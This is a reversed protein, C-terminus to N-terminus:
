ASKQHAEIPGYEEDIVSFIFLTILYDCDERSSLFLINNEKIKLALRLIEGSRLM